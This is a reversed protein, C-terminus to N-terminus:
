RSSTLAIAAEPVIARADKTQGANAVYDRHDITRIKKGHLRGWHRTWRRFRSGMLKRTGGYSTLANSGSIVRHRPDFAM